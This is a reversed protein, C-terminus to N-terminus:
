RRPASAISRRARFPGASPRERFSPHAARVRKVRAMTATAGLDGNAAGGVIAVAAAKV